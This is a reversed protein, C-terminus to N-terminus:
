KSGVENNRREMQISVRGEVGIEKKRGGEFSGKAFIEDALL